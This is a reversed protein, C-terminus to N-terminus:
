LCQAELFKKKKKPKVWNSWKSAEKLRMLADHGSVLASHWQQLMCDGNEEWLDSPTRTGFTVGMIMKNTKMNLLECFWFVCKMTVSCDKLSMTCSPNTVQKIGTRKIQTRMKMTQRVTKDGRPKIMTVTTELLNLFM